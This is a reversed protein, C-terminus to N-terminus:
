SRNEATLQICLCYSPFPEATTLDVLPKPKLSEAKKTLPYRFTVQTDQTRVFSLCAAFLLLLYTAAKMVALEAVM